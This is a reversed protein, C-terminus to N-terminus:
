SIHILSLEPEEKVFTGCNLDIFDAGADAESRAIELLADANYEEVLPKILKRSTNILEGIIM